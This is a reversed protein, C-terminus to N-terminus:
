RQNTIEKCKALVDQPANTLTDLVLQADEPHSKLHGTLISSTIEPSVCNEGNLIYIFLSADQSSMHSIIKKIMDMYRFDELQMTKIDKNKWVTLLKNIEQIKIQNAKREDENITKITNRATLIGLITSVLMLVLGVYARVVRLDYVTKSKLAAIADKNKINSFTYTEKLPNLAAAGLGAWFSDKETAVRNGVDIDTQSVAGAFFNIGENRGGETIVDGGTLM